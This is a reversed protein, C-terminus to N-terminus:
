NLHAKRSRIFNQTEMQGQYVAEIHALGIKMLLLAIDDSSKGAEQRWPADMFAMREKAKLMLEARMKAAQNVKKLWQVLKKM